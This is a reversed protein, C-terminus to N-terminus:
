SWGRLLAAYSNSPSCRPPYLAQPGFRWRAKPPRFQMLRLTKKCADLSSRSDLLFEQLFKPVATHIPFFHYNQSATVAQNRLAPSLAGTKKRSLQGAFDITKFHTEPIQRQKPYMQQQKKDIKLANQTPYGGKPLWHSWFHITLLM